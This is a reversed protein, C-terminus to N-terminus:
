RCELLFLVVNNIYYYIAHKVFKKTVYGCGYALGLGRIQKWM